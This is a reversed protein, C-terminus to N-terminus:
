GKDFRNGERSEPGADKKIYGGTEKGEMVWEPDGSEKGTFNLERAFPEMAKNLAAKKEQIEGKWNEIIGVAGM